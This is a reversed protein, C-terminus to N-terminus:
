ACVRSSYHVFFFCLVLAHPTSAHSSLRHQLSFGAEVHACVENLYRQKRFNGNRYAKEKTAYQLIFDPQGADSEQGDEEDSNDQRVIGVFRQEWGKLLNVWKTLQGAVHSPPPPSSDFSLRPSWARAQATNSLFVFCLVRVCVCVCLCLCVCVGELLVTGRKDNNEEEERDSM